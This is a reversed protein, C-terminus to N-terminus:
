HTGSTDCGLSQILPYVGRTLCRPQPRKDVIAVFFHPFLCRLPLLRIVHYVLLHDLVLVVLETLQM